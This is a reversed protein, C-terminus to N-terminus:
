HSFSKNEFNVTANKPLHMLSEMNISNFYNGGIAVFKLNKVSGLSLSSFNPFLNNNLYLYQLNIKSSIWNDPLTFIQNKSLDLEELSTMNDFIGVPIEHLRNGSFNLRKLKSLNCFKHEKIYIIPNYSVSFDELNKLSCIDPLESLENNDLRFTKLDSLTELAHEPFHRIKNYSMDLEVLHGLFKFADAEIRELNMLSITLIKLNFANKINLGECSNEIGCFQEIPNGDLALVEVNNLNDVDFESLDNYDLYLHTLTMPINKIFDISMVANDTLYIHTIEPIIEDLPQNQYVVISSINNRRLYLHKLKPLFLSQTFMIDSKYDRMKEYESLRSCENGFLGLKEYHYDAAHDILARDLVLTEITANNGFRLEYFDILNNTLNLYVLNPLDDFVNNEIKWIHNDSLNLHTISKSILFPRRLHTIGMKSFDVTNGIIIGVSFCWLILFIVDRVVM